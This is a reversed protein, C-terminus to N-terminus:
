KVEGIKKYVINEANVNEANVVSCKPDQVTGIEWNKFYFNKATLAEKATIRYIFGASKCKINEFHMGDVRTLKVEYTPVVKWQFICNTRYEFVGKRLVDTVCNKVYVNEVFGGRRENTKLTSLRSVPGTIQCDHVYINRIGGSLESGFVILAHAKVITCNRAVINETPTNLRWGDHNRGSKIVIGDDGQEFKCNEVLFNKSMEFDVGDNNHGTAKVDLNRILGNESKFIHITWFPSNQITFDELLINQCRNFQILQPRLNAEGYAMQREIVPVNRSLQHYLKKLAEMHAPPRAFWIKWTDMKPMLKGKGTIAINKRGFAYVLPSYNYCEIGEWSTQVAPLYAKPDDTFNIVANESLHLNVNDKLHIAGTQWVGAPVVVRGGGADTCAQIADAFAKTNDFNTESKAGFDTIIFDRDPYNYVKIDPMDFPADVKISTYKDQSVVANCASLFGIICVASLGLLFKKQLLVRKMIKM